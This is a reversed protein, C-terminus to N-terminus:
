KNDIIFRKCKTHLTNDSVCVVYNGSSLSYYKYENDPIPESQEIKTGGDWPEKDYLLYIYNPNNASVKITVTNQNESDISEYDITVDIDLITKQANSDICTCALVVFTLLLVKISRSSSLIKIISHLTIM